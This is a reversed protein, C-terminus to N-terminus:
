LSKAGSSAHILLEAPADPQREAPVVGSDIITGPMSLRLVMGLPYPLM